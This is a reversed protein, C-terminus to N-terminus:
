VFPADIPLVKIKRTKIEFQDGNSLVHTVMNTITMPTGEKLEDITNHGLNRADFVIVM